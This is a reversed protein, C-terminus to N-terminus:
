ALNEVKAEPYAKNVFDLLDFHYQEEYVDLCQVTTGNFTENPTIMRQGALLCFFFPL